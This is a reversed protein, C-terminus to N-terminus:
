PTSNPVFAMALRGAPSIQSCTPSTMSASYSKQNCHRIGVISGPRRNQHIHRIASDSAQNVLSGRFASGSPRNLTNIEINLTNTETDPDLTDIETDSDICTWSCRVSAGM